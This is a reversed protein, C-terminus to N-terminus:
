VEYEEEDETYGLEEKYRKDREAMAFKLQKYEGDTIVGDRHARSLDSSLAYAPDIDPGLKAWIAALDSDETM